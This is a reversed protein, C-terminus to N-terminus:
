GRGAGSRFVPAWWRVGTRFMPLSGWVGTRFVPSGGWCRHLVRSGRGQVPAPSPTGHKAGTSPLTVRTECRHTPFNVLTECRHSTTPVRTESRHPSLTVQTKFLHWNANVCSGGSNTSCFYNKSTPHPFNRVNGSNRLFALLCM